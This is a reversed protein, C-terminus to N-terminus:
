FARPTGCTRTKHKACCVAGDDFARCYGTSTAKGRSDPRWALPMGSSRKRSPQSGANRLSFLFTLRSLWFAHAVLKTHAPLVCGNFIQELSTQSLSYEKIGCPEKLSELVDFVDALHLKAGDAQSGPIEFRMKRGQAERLTVGPYTEELADTLAQKEKELALWTAADGARIFGFHTLDFDVSAGSGEPTVNKALRAGGALAFKEELNDRTIHEGAGGMASALATVEEESPLKLSAELQYGLGFKTKLRQASGLCRFRGGVMIGIRSCLAECEEMSHTTLIVACKGQRTAIASIVEWMFRKALPDMGTSPEDLFVIRPEGIMACAVSLKRKNGGSYGGAQREYHGLLDM